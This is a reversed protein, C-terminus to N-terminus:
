SAILLLARNFEEQCTPCFQEQLVWLALDQNMGSLSASHYFKCICCSIGSKLSSM